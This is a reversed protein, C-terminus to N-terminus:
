EAQAPILVQLTAMTVSLIEKIKWFTNNGKKAEGLM